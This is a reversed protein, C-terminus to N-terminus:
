WRELPRNHFVITMELKDSLSICLVHTWSGHVCNDLIVPARTWPYWFREVNKIGTFVPTMKLCNTGTKLDPNWSSCVMSRSNTVEAFFFERIKVFKGFNFFNTFFNTLHGLPRQRGVVVSSNSSNWPKMNIFIYFLSVFATQVKCHDTTRTFANYIFTVNWFM